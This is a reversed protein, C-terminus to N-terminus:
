SSENMWAFCASEFDNRAKGIEKQGQDAATREEESRNQGLGKNLLLVWSKLAERTTSQAVAVPHRRGLRISLHITDAHVTNTASSISPIIEQVAKGVSDIQARQRALADANDPDIADLGERAVELTRVHGSLIVGQLILLSIGRVAQDISERTADRDRVDRDHALQQKHNRVSVYAALGAAIIAAIGVLISGANHSWWSEGGVLEVKQIVALVV